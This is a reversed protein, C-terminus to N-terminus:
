QQAPPLSIPPPPLLAVTISQVASHIGDAQADIEIVGDSLGSLTRSWNGQADALVSVSTLWGTSRNTATLIVNAGPAATGSVPLESQTWTAGPLVVTPVVADDIAVTVSSPKAVAYDIDTSTVTHKIVGSHKGEAVGDQLAQVSVLQPVNWNDPTFVLQTRAVSLQKDPAITVTVNSSPVQTLVLSYTGAAGGETLSLATTSLNVAAEAGLDVVVLKRKKQAVLNIDMSIYRGDASLTPYVGNDGGFFVGQITRVSKTLRDYRYLHTITEGTKAGIYVVYRGNASLHPFSYTGNGESIIETKGAARDRLYILRGVPAGPVTFTKTYDSTYAAFNGDGSVSLDSKITSGIDPKGDVSFDVRDVVGTSRDFVVMEPAASGEKGYYSILRGDNSVFMYSSTTAIGISRPTYIQTTQNVRDRVNLYARGGVSTRYAVYRGDASIGAALGTDYTGAAPAAALVEAKGSVRDYLFYGVGTTAQPLGMDISYSAFVVFRGNGSIVPNYTRSTVPLNGNLMRNAQETTGAIRDFILVNNSTAGAPAYKFATYRGDGSIRMNTMSGPALELFTLAVDPPVAARASDAAFGLIAGAICARRIAGWRSNLLGM